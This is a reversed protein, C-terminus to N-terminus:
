IEKAESMIVSRQSAFKAAGLTILPVILSLALVIRSSDEVGLSVFAMRYLFLGLSFGVLNQTYYLKWNIATNEHSDILSYFAISGTGGIGFILICAAITSISSHANFFLDKGFSVFAALLLMHLGALLMRKQNSVRKLLLFAMTSGSLLFFATLAFSLAVENFFLEFAQIFYLELFGYYLGTLFSGLGLLLWWKPGSSRRSEGRSWFMLLVFGSALVLFYWKAQGEIIRMMNNKDLVPKNDTLNWKLHSSSLFSSEVAKNFMDSLASDEEFELKEPGNTFRPGYAVYFHNDNILRQLDTVEVETLDSKKHIFLVKIKEKTATRNPRKWLIVNRKTFEEITLVENNMLRLMDVLNRAHVDGHRGGFRGGKLMLFFGKDTLRKNILSLGEKTSLYDTYTNLGNVISFESRSFITILDFNQDTAELFSRGGMLAVNAKKYIYGSYSAYDETMYHYVSDSIEVGRMELGSNVGQKLTEGGGSGIDLAKHANRFYPFLGRGQYSEPVIDSFNMDDHYFILTDTEKDRLLDVREGLNWRTNILELEGKRVGEFGSYSPKKEVGGTSVSSLFYILNFKDTLLQQATFILAVVLMLTSTFQYFKQKKPFVIFILVAALTIILLFLSEVGIAPVLLSALVVGCGAGALDFLCYKKPDSYDISAILLYGLPTLCVSSIIMIWRPTSIVQLTAVSLVLVLPLSWLAVKIAKDSSFRSALLGGLVFGVSMYSIIELGMFQKTSYKFVLVIIIQLIFSILSIAGAILYSGNKNLFDGLYSRPLFFPRM